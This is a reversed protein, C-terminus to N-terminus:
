APTPVYDKEHSYDKNLHNKLGRIFTFLLSPILINIDKGSLMYLIAAIVSLLLSYGAFSLLYQMLRSKPKLRRILRAIFHGTPLPVFITYIIFTYLAVIFALLWWPIILEGNRLAELANVHIIPGAMRGLYTDHIDTDTYDGIVVIKGDVMDAVNVGMDLIDSGMDKIVTERMVSEQLPSERDVTEDWLKIPFRLVLSNWALNNGVFYFPGNKTVSDPGFASLYGKYALTHTKPKLFQYKVFNTEYIDTSYETNGSIPTLSKHILPTGTNNALIVNDLSLLTKLLASDAETKHKEALLIDVLLLKHRNETQQLFDNLKTRDTIDTNGKPLHHEDELDVLQKDHAVNVFVYDEPIRNEAIGLLEKVQEVRQGVSPGTLTSVSWNDAMYCVFVLVM